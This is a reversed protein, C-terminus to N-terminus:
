ACPPSMQIVIFVKIDEYQMGINLSLNFSQFHFIVVRKVWQSVTKGELSEAM